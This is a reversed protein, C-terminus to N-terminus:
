QDGLFPKRLEEEINKLSPSRLSNQFASNANNGFLLDLTASPSVDQSSKSKVIIKSFGVACPRPDSPRMIDHRVFIWRDDHNDIYSVIRYPELYTLSNKFQLFVGGNALKYGKKWVLNRIIGSRAAM